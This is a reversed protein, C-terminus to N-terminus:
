RKQSSKVHFSGLRIFTLNVYACVCVCIYMCLQISLLFVYQKICCKLEDSANENLKVQVNQVKADQEM